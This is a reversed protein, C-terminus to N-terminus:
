KKVLSICSAWSIRLQMLSPLNKKSVSRLFNEASCNKQAKKWIKCKIKIVQCFRCKWIIFSFYLNLFCLCFNNFHFWLSNCRLFSIFERVANLNHHAFRTLTRFWNVGLGGATNAQRWHSFQWYKEPNVNVDDTKFQSPTTIPPQEEPKATISLYISTIIGLILAILIAYLVKKLM